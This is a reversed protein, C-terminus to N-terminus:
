LLRLHEDYKAMIGAVIFIILSYLQTNGLGSVLRERISRHGQELSQICKGSCIKKIDEDSYGRKLCYTFYIQITQFM